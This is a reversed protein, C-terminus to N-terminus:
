SWTVTRVSSTVFAGASNYARIRYRRVGTTGGIVQSGDASLGSSDDGFNPDDGIRIQLTVSVAGTTTWRLTTLDGIDPTSDDVTFSNIVASPVNVTVTIFRNASIAPNAANFCKIQYKTTQTPTRTTTGSASVGIGLVPGNPITQEAFQITDANATSWSLTVSQGAEISTSSASFNTVSPVPDPVETVTVMLSDTDSCGTNSVRLTYTTDSSPSISMTGDNSVSVGNITVTNTGSTNWRLTTSEGEEISSDDVTFSNITGPDCDEDEVNITLSEPEPPTTGPAGVVSLEYTTDATRNGTSVSGSSASGNRWTSGNRRIIYGTINSTNWRLTTSTGSPISYDDATFSNITPDNTAPTVTVTTTAVTDGASNTATLTYETTVDPSVLVSGSAVPAVSGVGQDISASVGDTITWRLRTSGGVQITTSDPAFSGIVPATQEVPTGSYLAYSWPGRQNLAGIFRVRVARGLPIVQHILNFDFFNTVAIGNFINWIAGTLDTVDVTPILGIEVEAVYSSANWSVHLDYITALIDAQTLTVITYVAQLGNVTPLAVDREDWVGSEKDYVEGTIIGVAVNGDIGVNDSPPVDALIHIRDSLVFRDASLLGTTIQAADIELASVINARLEGTVIQEADLQIASVISSRLEGAIIDDASLHRIRVVNGSITGGIINDANLNIVNVLAANLSGANINDANINVVNVVDANIEGGRIRDANLFGATIEGANINIVNIIGADIQGADIKNANLNLIDADIIVIRNEGVHILHSEGVSMPGLGGSVPAPIVAAVSPSQAFGVTRDGARARVTLVVPTEVEVSITLTAPSTEFEGIKEAPEDPKELWIEFTEVEPQWGMWSLIVFAGGASPTVSELELNTPLIDVLARGDTAVYQREYSTSELDDIRRDIDTEDHPM